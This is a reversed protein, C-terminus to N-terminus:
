RLPKPLPQHGFAYRLLERTLETESWDPHESRLRVTSLDRAFLSMEPALELREAGSMRRYIGVQVAAAEPSTDRM